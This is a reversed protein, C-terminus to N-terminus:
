RRRAARQRGHPPRPESRRVFSEISRSSGVLADFAISGTDHAHIVVGALLVVGSTVQIILYRLGVTFAKETRVAWILFVSTIATLEWFVFLSILDGVFVACIAAGAYMLGSVHQVKDRVHLAYLVSIFAAIHFIYGWVRALRDNRLPILEYDFFPITVTHGDPIMLIHVFGLVPLALMYIQLLRGRLLPVLLAGVILLLGPPLSEIM